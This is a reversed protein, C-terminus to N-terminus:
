LFRYVQFVSLVSRMKSFHQYVRDGGFEIQQKIEEPEKELLKENSIVSKKLHDGM